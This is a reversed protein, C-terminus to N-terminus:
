QNQVLHVMGYGIHGDPAAPSFSNPDFVNQGNRTNLIHPIQYLQSTRNSETVIIQANDDFDNTDVEVAVIVM